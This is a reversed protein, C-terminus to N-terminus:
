RKIAHWIAIFPRWTCGPSIVEALGRLGRLGFYSLGLGLPAWNVQDDEGGIVVKGEADPKPMMTFFLCNGAVVGDAAFKLSDGVSFLSLRISLQGMRAAAACSLACSAAASLGVFLYLTKFYFPYLKNPKLSFIRDEEEAERREVGWKSDFQLHIGVATASGFVAVPVAWGAGASAIRGTWRAVGLAVAGITM